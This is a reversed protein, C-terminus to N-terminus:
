ESPIFPLFSIQISIARQERHQTGVIKNEIRYVMFCLFIYKRIFLRIIVLLAKLQELVYEFISSPFKSRFRKLDFTAAAM